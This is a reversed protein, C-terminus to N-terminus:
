TTPDDDYYDYYELLLLVRTSLYETRTYYNRVAYQKILIEPMDYKYDGQLVDVCGHAM